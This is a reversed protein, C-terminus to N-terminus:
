TKTNKEVEITGEKFYRRQTRVWTALQQNEKFRVPVQCDGNKAKYELLEEFREKWSKQNKLQNQFNM